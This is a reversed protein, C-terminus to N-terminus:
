KELADLDVKNEELEITEVDKLDDQNNLADDFENQEEL